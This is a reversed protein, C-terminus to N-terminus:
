LYTEEIMNDFLTLSPQDHSKKKRKPNSIRQSPDLATKSINLDMDNNHVELFLTKVKLKKLAMFFYVIEELTNSILM